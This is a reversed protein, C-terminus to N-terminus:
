EDVEAALPVSSSAGPRSVAIAAARAARDLAQPMALGQMLGGILYGTFTDGAATTDVAKVPYAPQSFWEGDTVCLAGKSGLTLVIDAEPFRRHLDRLMAEGDEPALHSLAAGEIENLILLNVLPLPLRGINEDMPSPNLVIRMGLRHASEMIWPLQSIENQLLLYDGPAFGTLARAVDERTIERNAGGFLIISNEGEPNTQIIAHGSPVPKRVVPSTHVGADELAKLLLGGDTEGVAGALWTEAGSKALAIAQNLGKGGCFVQMGLSGITEGPQAFHPVAYVHDANLSGFVLAKM